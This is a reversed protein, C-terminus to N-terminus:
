KSSAASSNSVLMLPYDKVGDNSNGSSDETLPASGTISSRAAPNKFTAIMCKPDSKACLAVTYPPDSELLIAAGGTKTRSNSTAFIVTGGHMCKYQSGTTLFPAM